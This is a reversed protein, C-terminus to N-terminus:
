QATKLQSILESNPHQLDTEQNALEPGPPREKLQKQRLEEHLDKLEDYNAKQSDIHNMLKLIQKKM